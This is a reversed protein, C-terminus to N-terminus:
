DADADANSLGNQLPSNLPHLNRCIENNCGRYIVNQAINQTCTVSSGDSIWSCSSFAGGDIKYRRKKTFSAWNQFESVSM